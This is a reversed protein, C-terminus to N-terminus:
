KQLAVSETGLLIKLRTYLYAYSPGSLVHFFNLPLM